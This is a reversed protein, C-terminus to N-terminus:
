KNRDKWELYTEVSIKDPAWMPWKGKCWEVFEEWEEDSM